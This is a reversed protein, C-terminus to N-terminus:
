VSTSGGKRELGLCPAPKKDECDMRLSSQQSGPSTIFGIKVRKLCTMMVLPVRPSGGEDAPM